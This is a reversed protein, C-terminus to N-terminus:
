ATPAVPMAPEAVPVGRRRELTVTTGSVTSDISVDHMLNQMLMIGRGREDNPESVHWKGTDSVEIKLAGDLFHVNIRLVGGSGIYAHEIANNCAESLALVIEGTEGEAFGKRALWSRMRRRLSPLVGPETPLELEFAVIPDVSALLLAVDDNPAGISDAVLSLVKESTVGPGGNMATALAEIGREINQGRREVLGDTYMALRAGEPLALRAEVIDQAEAVGLPPASAGDLRTISGSAEDLLLPPPHGACSYAIEGGIPDISVCTTTIMEDDNVHRLMRRLIEAPSAFDYAHARFINRQRGMITAAGVGRGSVDGVCLQLIGDGRRVADYWDGGVEVGTGGALYEGALAIGPVRPLRDPLLSRQLRVALDHEHEFARARALARSAQEVVAGLLEWESPELRGRSTMLSISGAPTGDLDLVPVSHVAKLRRGYALYLERLPKERELSHTKPAGTALAAVTRLRIADGAVRRWGPLKSSARVEEGSESDVEVVVVADPFGAELSDLLADAIESSTAADSLRRTLRSWSQVQEGQAEIERRSRRVVIALTLLILALATGLSSLALILSRRPAAYLSSESRDLAITWGPLASTAFAVVHNSGGDLGEAGSIEGTGIKQIRALLARNTVPALGREVLQGTRDVITVGEFGLAESQQNDATGGLRIGGSLVGTFHGASDFTPVAVVITPRNALRSVIGSSVYPLRTAVVRKFYTRDGVNLKVGQVLPTDAARVNGNLDSWGLGSTFFRGKSSEVRAFYEDMLVTNGDVVPPSQAITSLTSVGGGFAVDFLKGALVVKTDLDRVARHQDDHYQRIALFAAIGALILVAAAAGGILRRRFM